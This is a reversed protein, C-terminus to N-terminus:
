TKIAGYHFQFLQFQAESIGKRNTKIAGCQFQFALELASPTLHLRRLRVM